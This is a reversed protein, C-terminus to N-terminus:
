SAINSCVSDSAATLLVKEGGERKSTKKRQKKKSRGPGHTRPKGSKRRYEEPNGQKPLPQVPHIPNAGVVNTPAGLLYFM